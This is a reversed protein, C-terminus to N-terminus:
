SQAIRAAQDWSDRLELVMNLVEELPDLNKDANADSLHKLWFAYLEDLGRAVEGGREEDLAIKLELIIRSAEQIANHIIENRGPSDEEFGTVARRLHTLIGDYLMVVQKAPSATQVHVAKYAALKKHPPKPM